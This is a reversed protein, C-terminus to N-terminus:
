VAHALVAESFRETMSDLNYKNEVVNMASVAAALRREPPWEAYAAIAGTLSDEDLHELFFDPLPAKVLDLETGDAYSCMVPIGRAQLEQLVLGGLGPMVGLHARDLLPRKSAQDYIGGHFTVQRAVGLQDADAELRDRLPGEGVVDVHIQM